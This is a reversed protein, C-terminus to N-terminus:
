KKNADSKSIWTNRECRHAFHHLGLLGDGTALRLGFLALLFSHLALLLTTHLALFFCGLTGLTFLGALPLAYLGAIGGLRGDGVRHAIISTFSRAIAFPVSVSLTVSVSVSLTTM